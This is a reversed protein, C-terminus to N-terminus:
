VNTQMYGRWPGLVDELIMSVDRTGGFITESQRIESDPEFELLSGLQNFDALSRLGGM